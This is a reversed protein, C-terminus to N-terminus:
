HRQPVPNGPWLTTACSRLDQVDAAEKVGIMLAARAPALRLVADNGLRRVVCLDTAVATDELPQLTAAPGPLQLSVSQMSGELTTWVLLFLLVEAGQDEVGQDWGNPTSKLNHCLPVGFKEFWVRNKGFM